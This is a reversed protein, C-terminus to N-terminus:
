AVRHLGDDCQTHTYTLTHKCDPASVAKSPLQFVFDITEVTLHKEEEAWVLSNRHSQHPGSNKLCLATVTLLGDCATGGSEFSNGLKCM